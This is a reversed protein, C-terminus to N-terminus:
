GPDGVLNATAIGALAATEDNDSTDGSVGVAGLLMGAQNRFLVGGPVPVFKGGALGNMSQIFYAQEEARNMIARTGLGLQIAAKAKGSAIQQRMQSCGDESLSVIVSARPDIVVVSLPKLNLERGKLICSEAILRAQKLNVSM